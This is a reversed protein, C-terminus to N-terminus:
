SVIYTDEIRMGFEGPFYLGPELTVVDGHLLTTKPARASLVIGDHIELGVGHGLAHSFEKDFGFKKLQARAARDLAHNTVGPRLIAKAAAIASRLAKEARRQKATKIGTFFVRSMDSCYDDVKAGCDIQVIDGPKLARDTPHHHPIATHDGFGVITPFAMDDAGRDHALMSIKWALERETIGKKLFTPVHALVDTTIAIARRITRQESLTKKRRMEEILNLSQVFKKNKYKRKLSEFESVKM